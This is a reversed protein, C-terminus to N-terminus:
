EIKREAFRVFFVDNKGNQFESRVSLSAKVTNIHGAGRVVNRGSIKHRDDDVKHVKDHTCKPDLRKSTM